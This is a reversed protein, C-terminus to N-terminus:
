DQDTVLLIVLYLDPILMTFKTTVALTQTTFYQTDAFKTVNNLFQITHV